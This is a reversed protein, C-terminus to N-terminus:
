WRVSLGLSVGRLMAMCQVSLFSPAGVRVVDVVCRVLVVVNTRKDM